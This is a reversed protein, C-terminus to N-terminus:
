GWERQFVFFSLSFFRKGKRRGVRIRGERKGESILVLSHTTIKKGNADRLFLHFKYIAAGSFFVSFM